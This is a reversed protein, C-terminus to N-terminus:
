LGHNEHFGYKIEAKKRALKADEIKNIGYRGLYKRVGDVVINVEWRGSILIVGTVGSTNNSYKKMNKRNELFTVARLNKWRNNVRSHDKHDIENKPWAGTEMAWIVRHSKLPIGFVAGTYYGSGNIATFAETGSFRSNWQNCAHQATRKKTANFLKEDRERWFLKGTDPEYQLLQRLLKPPPLPKQM